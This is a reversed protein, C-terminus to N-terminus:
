QKEQKQQQEKLARRYKSVHHAGAIWSLGLAAGFGILAGDLTRGGIFYGAIGVVAWFMPALINFQM